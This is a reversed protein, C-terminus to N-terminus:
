NFHIGFSRAHSLTRKAQQEISAGLPGLGNGSGKLVSMCMVEVHTKRAIQGTRISVVKGKFVKTANKFGKWVSLQSGSPVEQFRMALVRKSGSKFGAGGKSRSSPRNSFFGFTAPPTRTLKGPHSEPGGRRSGRLGWGRRIQACLPLSGSAGAGCWARTRRM